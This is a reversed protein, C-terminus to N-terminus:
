ANSVDIPVSRWEYSRPNIYLAGSSVTGERKNLRIDDCAIFVDFTSSFSTLVDFPTIIMQKFTARRKPLIRSTGFRRDDMLVTRSSLFSHVACPLTARRVWPKALQALHRVVDIMRKRTLDTGIMISMRCAKSAFVKRLRSSEYHEEQCAHQTSDTLHSLIEDIEDIGFACAQAGSVTPYSLVRCRRDLRAEEEDIEIEFRSRVSRRTPWRHLAGHVFGLRQFLDLHQQLLVQRSPDLPITKPHLLPQRSVTTQDYLRHFNYIEDAAHQDVIFLQSSRDVLTALIFGRNFQGIVSMRSRLTIDM